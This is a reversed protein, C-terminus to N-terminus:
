TASEAGVVRCPDGVHDRPKWLHTAPEIRHHDWAAFSGCEAIWGRHLLKVRPDDLDQSQMLLYPHQRSSRAAPAPVRAVGGGVAGRFQRGMRSPTRVGARCRAGGAGDHYGHQRAEACKGLFDAKISRAHKRGGSRGIRRRPGLDIPPARRRRPLLYGLPNSCRIQVPGLVATRQRRIVDLDGAPTRRWLHDSLSPGCEGRACLGMFGDHM